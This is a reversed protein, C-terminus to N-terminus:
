KSGVCVYKSLDDACKNVEVGYDRLVQRLAGFDEPRLEPIEYVLDRYRIFVEYQSVRMFRLVKYCIFVEDLGATYTGNITNLTLVRDGVEVGRLCGLARRLSSMRSYSLAMLSILYALVVSVIVLFVILRAGGLGVASPLLALIVVVYLILFLAIVVVFSSYSSVAREAVDGSWSWVGM